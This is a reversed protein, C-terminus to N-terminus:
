PFRVTLGATFWNANEGAINHGYIIDLDIATTPAFRLGAQARPDSLHGTQGYVEAIFTWRRRFDWQFGAGWTFHSTDDISDHLWGSNLNLRFDERLKLTVPVNVFAVNAGTRTDHLTNLIMAVALNNSGMPLVVFKGQLGTLTAWESGLRAGQLTATLEVPVGLNVVCAPQTVGVLDGNSAVAVWSEVQCEGASAIAADDVAYASGAAQAGTVVCASLGIGTIAIQVTRGLMRPATEECCDWHRAYGDVARRAIMVADIELRGNGSQM